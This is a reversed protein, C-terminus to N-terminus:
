DIHEHVLERFAFMVRARRALSTESWNEFAAKAAQVAADVDSPEALLVEAQPAGSAPEWVSSRRSSDGATPMGGIHHEIAKLATTTM